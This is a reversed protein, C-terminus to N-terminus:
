TSGLEDKWAPHLSGGPLRETDLSWSRRFQRSLPCPGQVNRHTLRTGFDDLLPVSDDTTSGPQPEKSSVQLMQLKFGALRPASDLIDLGDFELGGGKATSTSGLM